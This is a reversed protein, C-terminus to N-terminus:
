GGLVVTGAMKGGREQGVMDTTTACRPKARFVLLRGFGITQIAGPYVPMSYRIFSDYLSPIAFWGPGSGHSPLRLTCQFRQVPPLTPQTNLESILYHPSGVADPPVSPLLARKRYRSCPAAGRLRLGWAHLSVRHALVPLGRLRGRSCHAPRSSFAILWLDEICSPPSDYLPVTSVFCGFLLPIGGASTTSPLGSVLSFLGSGLRHPVRLRSLPRLPNSRTRSAALFSLFCRNVARSCWTLM